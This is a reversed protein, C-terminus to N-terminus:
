VDTKRTNTGNKMEELESAIEERATKEIDTYKEFKTSSLQLINHDITSLYKDAEEFKRQRGTIKILLRYTGFSQPSTDGWKENMEYLVKHAAEEAEAWQNCEMLGISLLQLVHTSEPSQEIINRCIRVTSEPDRLNFSFSAITFNLKIWKSMDVDKLEKPTVAAESDALREEVLKKLLSLKETKSLTPNLELMNLEKQTYLNTFKVTNKLGIDEWFADNGEKLTVEWPFSSNTQNIWPKEKWSAISDM